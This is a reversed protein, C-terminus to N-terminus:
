PLPSKQSRELVPLVKERWTKTEGIDIGAATLEALQAASLEIPVRTGDASIVFFGTLDEAPVRQGNIWLGDLLRTCWLVGESPVEPVVRNTSVSKLSPAAAFGYALAAADPEFLLRVLFGSTRDYYNANPYRTEGCGAIVCCIGIVSILRNCMRLDFSCSNM